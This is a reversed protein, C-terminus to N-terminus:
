FYTTKIKFTKNRITLIPFSVNNKWSVSSSYEDLCNSELTCSNEHPCWGCYLNKAGVCDNCNSFITCNDYLDVKVVQDKSVVYLSSEHLDFQMADIPSNEFVKIEATQNVTSGSQITLKKLRGDATGILVLANRNFQTVAIATSQEEYTAIPEVIIAQEGGFPSNRPSGCFYKPIEIYVKDCPKSPSIFDLGTCGDGNFCAQINQTFKNVISELTYTCLASANSPIGNIGQSFIAYLVDDGDTPKSLHAAQALNYEVGNKICSIPIETYSYYHTDAQCIRVLKTIYEHSTNSSHQKLQITMFYSFIWSSFGYVYKVIFSKSNFFMKTGPAEFQFLRDEKLSRTAVAPIENRYPTNIDYTVGVNMVIWRADTGSAIFAM